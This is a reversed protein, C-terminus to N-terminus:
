KIREGIFEEAIIYPQNLNFDYDSVDENGFILLSTKPKDTHGKVDGILENIIEFQLEHKTCIKSIFNELSKPIEINLKSSLKLNQEINGFIDSIKLWNGTYKEICLNIEGIFSNINEPIGVILCLLENEHYRLLLPHLDCIKMKVFPLLVRDFFGEFQVTKLCTIKWEEYEIPIDYSNQNISLFLELTYNTANFNYSELNFDCNQYFEKSNTKEILIQIM